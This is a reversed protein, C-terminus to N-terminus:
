QLKFRAGLYTMRGFIPGWIISSDFNPGFPDDAAMIPNKQTYDLINEMGLYVELNKWRRTVQANMMSFGPSHSAMRFGEPYLSTDPLRKSGIWQLTYDFNWDRIGEYALNLFSRNRAVLPRELLQGRYTSRVDYRRYAMRMDLMKLVEYNLEMQFSNSFSQGDLNYILINEPGADRDVIVQKKFDTRYFDMAFSGERYNLRFEQTFNLGMNWAVEPDLGFAGKGTGGLINLERSSILMGFNETLVNATRFGRGVSARVTTSETVGYRAHLRPTIFPGYLNHYDSRIGAILNFRDLHNFSYEVFVGPVHEVRDFSEENLGERFSDAMYSMGLKYKHNTNGIISQFIMNGYFTNERGTYQSDGFGLGQRHFIGMAQFGISKYPKHLFVRGTKAWVEMRETNMNVEYPVIHDELFKSSQGARNKMVISKIGYQGEWGKENHFQWRNLAMINSGLPHDLFSDKNRDTEFPRVATHLLLTNSWTDSIKQTVNLNLETRGNEGLYVNAYLRESDEPKKMEVNIQGAISEFGNIVSGAGKTVQISNMWTGPIYTLGEITALGRIMPMNEITLQTYIGSLGLMEIQKSGTIADTFSVDVSPNTEFSESLNCCAAKFLEKETMTHVNIPDLTNLTTSRERYVVSVEQLSRAQSLQIDLSNMKGRVPITDQAYGVYSIVLFTNGQIKRLSFKGEKDTTTGTVTGSWYLNVGELPVKHHHGDIEYVFGSVTQEQAAVKTVFCIILFFFITKKM